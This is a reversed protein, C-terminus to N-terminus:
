YAPCRRRCIISWLPHCCNITEPQRRRRQDCRAVTLALCCGSRKDRLCPWLGNHFSRHSLCGALFMAGYVPMSRNPVHVYSTDHLCSSGYGNSRAWNQMQGERIRRSSHNTHSAMNSHSYSNRNSATTNNRYRNHVTHHMPLRHNFISKTFICGVQHQFHIVGDLISHKPRDM